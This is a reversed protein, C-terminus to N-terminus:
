YIKTELAQVTKYWQQSDKFTQVSDSYANKNVTSDSEGRSQSNINPVPQTEIIYFYRENSPYDVTTVGGQYWDDNRSAQPIDYRNLRSLGFVTALAILIIVAAFAYAPLRFQGIPFWRESRRRALSSEISIRARLITEFDPSVTIKPLARLKAIRMKLQGINKKCGLCERLHQEMLSQKQYNLGGEIYDSVMEKFRQCSDM